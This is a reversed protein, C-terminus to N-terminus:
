LRIMGAKKMAEGAITDGTAVYGEEIFLAVKKTIGNLATKTEAIIREAEGMFPDYAETYKIEGLFIKSLAEYYPAVESYKMPTKLEVLKINRSALNNKITDTLEAPAIILDPALEYVKDFDIFMSNGLDTVGPIETTLFESPAGVLYSKYGLAFIASAAQESLVAVRAPPATVETDGIKVPFGDDGCGSFSGILLVAVMIVSLFKINKM